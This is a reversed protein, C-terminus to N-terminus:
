STGNKSVKKKKKEFLLVGDNNNYYFEKPETNEPIKISKLTTKDKPMDMILIM